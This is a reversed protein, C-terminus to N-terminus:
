VNVGVTPNHAVVAVNDTVTMGVVVGVKAAIAAIHLPAAAGTKGVVEVLPIVPVQLGVVTLLVDVPVYVNVALLPVHIAVVVKVTVTFGFAIGVKLVMPGNHAPLIGGMRGVVEVLPIVPVQLGAITFVVSVV